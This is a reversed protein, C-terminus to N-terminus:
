RGGPGRDARLASERIGVRQRDPQRSATLDTGTRLNHINSFLFLTLVLSLATVSWPHDVVVRGLVRMFRTMMSEVIV